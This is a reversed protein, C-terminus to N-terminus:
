SHAYPAPTAAPSIGVFSPSVHTKTPVAGLRIRASRLCPTAAAKSVSSPSEDGVIDSLTALAAGPASTRSYGM